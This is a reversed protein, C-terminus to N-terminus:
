SSVEQPSADKQVHRKRRHRALQHSVQSGQSRRKNLDFDGAQAKAEIDRAQGKETTVMARVAKAMTEPMVMVQGDSVVAGHWAM